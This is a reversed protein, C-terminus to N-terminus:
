ESMFLKYVVQSLTAEQQSYEVGNRALEHINKSIKAIESHLNNQANYEPIAIYKLVDVGRNTSVAYGDIVKIINPSNIIGCVYYAEAENYVDLM